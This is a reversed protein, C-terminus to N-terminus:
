NLWLVEISAALDTSDTMDEFLITDGGGFDLLFGQATTSGYTEVVDQGDLGANFLDLRWIEVTDELRFDEVVDEDDGEFFVFHDALTGGRLTDNGEGGLLRDLGQGGFITDKGSGGVFSDDGSGGFLTDTGFGGILDDAGENGYLTDNGRGGELTDVGSGGYLFDDGDGGGLFDM